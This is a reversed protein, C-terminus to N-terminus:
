ELSSQRQIVLVHPHVLMQGPATETVAVDLTGELVDLLGLLSALVVDVGEVDLTSAQDAQVIGM